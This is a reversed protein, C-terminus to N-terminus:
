KVNDWVNPLQDNSYGSIFDQKEGTAIDYVHRKVLGINAGYVHISISVGEEQANLVEHIDGVTPSVLDIEGTHLDHQCGANLKKGDEALSYERCTEIGRLVGIMGWVTHDHIPTQHGAAWVFSVISFRQQPDCHLLYQQYHEPHPCAFAEPLWDDHSILESLLKKGDSFIRQEDDGFEDVLGTFSSIFNRLRTINKMKLNYRRFEITELTPHECLLM